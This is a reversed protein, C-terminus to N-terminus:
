EKKKPFVKRANYKLADSEGSLTLLVGDIPLPVASQTAEPQSLPAVYRDSILPDAQKIKVNM